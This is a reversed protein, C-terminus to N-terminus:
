YPLLINYKKLKYSLSQRSIGLNNALENLSTASEIENIICTKEFSKIAQSLSEGNLSVLTELPIDKNNLSCNIEKTNIYSPLHEYEIYSTNGLNFAGEIVNKLERVNGPWDYTLFFNEVEQTLGLISKEMIKNFYNIFYKSLVLIDEHRERLSPVDILVTALRYFLDNRLRGEFICMKPNENIASLIRVDVPIEKVSGIRTVKKEEIVKLIKSQMNIDMSNIEDLFITGGDAIEFIGARNEAGTYSGKITGFLMGELLNSPIASCNQSLFIKNKRKSSSHISQAVMEKGTGTEGCIMVSSNTKALREIQERLKQVPQSDGIIDLKTYFKNNKNYSTKAVSLENKFHNVFKVFSVAGIISNNNKIPLTNELYVCSQGDFSTQYTKKGITSIGQLAKLLTSEDPKISPYIDLIHKGIVGKTSFISIDDRYYKIYKIIGDQDVILIGDSFMEKLALEEVYENFYEEFM